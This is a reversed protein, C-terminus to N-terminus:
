ADDDGVEELEFAERGLRDCNICVQAMRKILDLGSIPNGTKNFYAEALNPLLGLLENVWPEIVLGTDDSGRMSQVRLGIGAAKLRDKLDKAGLGTIVVQEIMDLLEGDLEVEKEKKHSRGPGGGYGKVFRGKEDRKDDMKKDM